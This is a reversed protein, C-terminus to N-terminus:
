IEGGSGPEQDADVDGGANGVVRAFYREAKGRLELIMDAPLLLDCLSTIEFFGNGTATEVIVQLDVLEDICRRFHREFQADINARSFQQLFERLELLGIVPIDDGTPQLYFQLRQWRLHLLASSAYPSLKRPRSLRVGLQEEVDESLPRLYAIGLPENIELYAGLNEAFEQLRKRHEIISQFSRENRSRLVYRARLLRRLCGAVELESKEM